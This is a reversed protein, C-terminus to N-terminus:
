EKWARKDVSKQYDKWTQNLDGQRYANWASHLYAQAVFAISPQQVYRQSEVIRDVVAPLAEFEGAVTRALLLGYLAELHGPFVQLAAEFYKASGGPLRGDGPRRNTLREFKDPDNFYDIGQNLLTAALYGRVLFQNPEAELSRRFFPEAKEFDGMRYNELGKAYDLLAPDPTGAYYSAEAMRRLFNRDGQLPPYWATITRSGTLVESYLGQAFATELQYNLLNPLLLSTVLLILVIAFGPLLRLLDKSFAQFRREELGLYLGMLALVLGIVAFSWGRGVYGFFNDSYGLARTLFGDWSSLQFLRYDRIILYPPVRIFGNRDSSRPLAINQKWMSQVESFNREIHRTVQLDQSYYAAGLFGLTPSWTVVFYPFLLAAILGIWLPTRALRKLNKWFAFMLVLFAFAIAGLRGFHSPLLNAGFATVAEPPLSYWPQLGGFGLILGAGLLFFRESKFRGLRSGISDFVERM